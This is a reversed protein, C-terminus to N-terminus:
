LLAVGKLDAIMSQATDIDFPARRIVADDLIEAFVGGIGLMVCHGFTSDRVCGVILDVGPGAMPAVSVGDICAQPHCRAVNELISAFASRVDRENALSLCVGGADSKHPVDRSVVKLAVPFGVGAALAMAEEPTRAVQEPLTPIGIARMLHKAELENYAAGAAISAADSDLVPLSPPIRRQQQNEALGILAAVTRIARTPDEFVSYGFSELKQRVHDSTLLCAVRVRAAQGESLAALAPMLRRMMADSLGLHSLFLLLSDATGSEALAELMPGLVEPTNTIQATVDVPNRTGAYPILDRVKAQTAAPLEPIEVGLREAEDALLVGVGGSTTVVTLSRGKPRRHVTLGYAIDFMEEISYARCVGFEELVANFVRDSGVMSATHSAAALAGVPSTGVKMMIVPKGNGRALELAELLRNGDRVGEICAVIVRTGSDTAMYMMLEAVDIDSENGSTAWLSFALGRREALVLCHAGLAGSQSALGISGAQRANGGVAGSFTAVLSNQTNIVGLCNPGLIRVGSARASAVLNRQLALGENGVEAFGSTYVIAVRVGASVADEFSTLVHSAPVAIIALDPRTPADSVTPYANLGQVLERHPNVPYIPGGFRAAKLLHLPRGGIKTPDDSAGVVAVASPDFLASLTHANRTAPYHSM